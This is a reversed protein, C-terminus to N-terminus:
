EPVPLERCASVLSLKVLGDFYRKRSTLILKGCVRELEDSLLDIARPWETGPRQNLGDVVVLLRLTQGAELKRWARLQKSWFEQHDSDGQRDTQDCLKRAILVLPDLLNEGIEEATLFLTLPKVVWSLWTQAVLWSKGNGENGTVAVIGGLPSELLLTDLSETLESRSVSPIPGTIDAPSLPQGLRKIAKSSNSFVNKLWEENAKCAVDFSWGPEPSEQLAIRQDFNDFRRHLAIVSIQLQASLADDKVGGMLGAVLVSSVLAIFDSARSYNDGSAEMYSSILASCSDSPVPAGAIHADAIQQLHGQTSSLSMWEPVHAQSLAPSKVIQRVILDFATGWKGSRFLPNAGLHVLTSDHIKRGPAQVLADQAANRKAGIKKFLSMLPALCSMAVRSVSSFDV